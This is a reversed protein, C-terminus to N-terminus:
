VNLLEVANKTVTMRDDPDRAARPYLGSLVGRLSEVTRRTKTSRAHVLQGSTGNSWHAPLLYQGRVAVGPTTAEEDVYRRRLEAGLDFTQLLGTKTLAGPLGGGPLNGREYGKSCM